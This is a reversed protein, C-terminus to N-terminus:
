GSGAVVVEMHNGNASAFVDVQAGPLIQRALQQSGAFNLVVKVGTNRADFRQAIQEFADALSAAACVTVEGTTAGGASDATANPAAGTRATAGSNGCAGFLLSLVLGCHYVSWSSAQAGPQKGKRM